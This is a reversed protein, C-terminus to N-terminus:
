SESMLRQYAPVVERPEGVMRIRGTELWVVRSCQEDVAGMNHTVLLLTKGDALFGDIWDRCKRVFSADGVALIEDVLLVDPAAHIAISFGLRMFMGSSYTRVPDDIFDRLGAFEVISDFRDRIEAKTMGLVIGSLHVNERGSFEPHFGAGLEILPSVRGYVSISGADPKLIGAILKLLTSKGSGNRGIIGVAEGRFVDLDIGDLVQLFTRRNSQRGLLRQILTSKLSGYDGPVSYKRYRKSIGRARIAPLREDATM